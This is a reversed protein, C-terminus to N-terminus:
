PKAGQRQLAAHVRVREQAFTPGFTTARMTALHPPLGLALFTPDGPHGSVTSEMTQWTADLCVHRGHSLAFHLAVPDETPFLRTWEHM